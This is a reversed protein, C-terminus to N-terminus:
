ILRGALIGNLELTELHFTDGPLLTKLEVIHYIGNVQTAYFRQAAEFRALGPLDSVYETRGDNTAIIKLQFNVLSTRGFGFDEGGIGANFDEDSM